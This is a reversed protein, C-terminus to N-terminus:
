VCGYVLVIVLHSAASHTHLHQPAAHPPATTSTGAIILLMSCHPSGGDRTELHLRHGHDPPCLEACNVLGTSVRQV